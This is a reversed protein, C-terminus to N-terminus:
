SPLVFGTAGGMLARKSTASRRGLALAAPDFAHGGPLGDLQVPEAHFIAMYRILRDALADLDARRSLDTAGSVTWRMMEELIIASVNDTTPQLGAAKYHRAFYRIVADSLASMERQCTEETRNTARWGLMQRTILDAIKSTSPAIM